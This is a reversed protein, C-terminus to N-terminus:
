ISLFPFDPTGTMARCFRIRSPVVLNHTQARAKSLPNLIRRQWSSHHLGAATAGILGRAQSGRYAMSTAGSFVFLCFFFFSLFFFLFVLDPLGYEKLSEGKTKQFIGM